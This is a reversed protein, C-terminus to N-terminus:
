RYLGWSHNVVTIGGDVVLNHGSVYKAEDSALYLGAEAVDEVKLTAEELNTGSKFIAEVAAM